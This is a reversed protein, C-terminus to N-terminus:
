PLTNSAHRPDLEHRLVLGTETVDLVALDTIVRDVM